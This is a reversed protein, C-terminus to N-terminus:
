TEAQNLPKLLPKPYNILVPLVTALLMEQNQASKIIIGVAFTIDASPPQALFPSKHERTHLLVEDKRCLLTLDVSVCLSTLLIM